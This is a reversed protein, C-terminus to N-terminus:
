WRSTHGFVFSTPAVSFSIRDAESETSDDSRLFLYSALGLLGAGVGYGIFAPTTKDNLHFALGGGIAAVGGATAVWPLPGGSGQSDDAVLNPDPARQYRNPLIPDFKKPRPDAATSVSGLESGADEGLDIETASVIAKKDLSLPVLMRDQSDVVIAFSAREYNKASVDIQYKGKPLWLDEDHLLVDQADYQSNVSATANSPKLALSVPALKKKRFQKKLSTLQERVATDPEFRHCREFYLMARQKQKDILLAQALVCTDPGALPAPSLLTIALKADGDQLARTADKPPPSPSDALSDGAANGSILLVILALAPTRM